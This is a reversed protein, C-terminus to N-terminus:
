SIQRAKAPCSALREGRVQPALFPWPRRRLASGEGARSLAHGVRVRERRQGGRGARPPDETLLDGPGGCDRILSPAPVVPLLPIAAIGASVDTGPLCGDCG